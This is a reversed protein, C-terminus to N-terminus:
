EATQSDSTSSLNSLDVDFVHTRQTQSAMTPQDDAAAGGLSAIVEVRRTQSDITEVRIEVRPHDFRGIASEPRWSEGRYDASDRLLRAARLVGADLLLETQRLQHQVRVERRFRLANAAMATVLSTAVLLCALVCILVAGCRSQNRCKSRM